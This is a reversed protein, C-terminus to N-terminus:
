RVSPVRSKKRASQNPENQTLSPYYQSRASLLLINHTSKWKGGRGRVWLLRRLRDTDDLHFHSYMSAGDDAVGTISSNADCVLEIFSHFFRFKIIELKKLLLSSEWQSSLGSSISQESSMALSSIVALCSDKPSEVCHYESPEAQTTQTEGRARTEM